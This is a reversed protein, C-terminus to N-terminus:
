RVPMVQGTASFLDTPQNLLWDVLAADTLPRSFLYGQALTCGAALLAEAQAPTEVGEAIVQLQLAEAVQVTSRVLAAQYRNDVMKIVFSRDIKVANVPLLDLSALSSYGTGFDDLSLSVGLDRLQQLLGLMADTQMALSETVELRLASPPLHHDALTQRVLEVLAQNHLQARSLNVSVSAPAHPGLDRQWRALDRCARRLVFEGVAEILGAEEAVPIFEIPPVLGRQPHQWRALAEVGKVQGSALDVIPQYAVFLDDDRLARRLDAEMDVVKRIREHMAPQFAVARGRGQHKAEYMATDADRLVSEVDASSVDSTLVGISASSQVRRGQLDYPASLAKLLRNAVTMADDPHRIGSLLVVFEDGGLRGALDSLDAGQAVNDGPRLTARLRSAIQRLLEDGAEHGLSDNVVKFRDFDMFLVAFHWDPELQRRDVCRQIAQQMSARNPLRTLTDTLAADSLAQAMHKHPTIDVHVGAMRLARGERDREIVAGAAMVWLWEGSKARMRFETRYPVSADNLHARLAARAMTADEPHVLRMWANIKDPLEALAFGFMRAWRGNYRIRGSPLHWDWSGLGAGDITLDLMRQQERSETEDLFCAVVGRARGDGHLLLRTNVRLWRRTGDPLQVGIQAGTLPEGTRLTYMAPHRDGPLDQGIADIAAWRPDLPTLGLLQDRTLHLVREAETNAEVIAGGTDHVVVGAPLTHLLTYLDDLPHGTPPIHLVKAHPM